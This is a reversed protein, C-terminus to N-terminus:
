FKRELCLIYPNSYKIAEVKPATVGNQEQEETGRKMPNMFPPIGKPTVNAKKTVDLITMMTYTNILCVVSYLLIGGVWGTQSFVAPMTLYSNALFM